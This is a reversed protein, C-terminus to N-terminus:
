KAPIHPMPRVFGRPIKVLTLAGTAVDRKPTLGGWGTPRAIGSPNKLVVCLDQNFEPTRMLELNAFKEQYTHFIYVGWGDFAIWYDDM